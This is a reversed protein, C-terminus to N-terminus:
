LSGVITVPMGVRSRRFVDDMDRNSLAVCGNTWDKGDGGEGHVEILNGIGVRSPITGRQQAAKFRVRDEANPYNLLLAKYFATSGNQRTEVVRYKGEPTARDGAHKKPLLGNAGLEARFTAMRIGDDYLHLERRLKDVIIAPAGNRKSEAVTEAAWSRWQRLLRTDSFRNHLNNWGADVVSTFELSKEAARIARDLDGGKALGDATALQLEAKELASMERRGLGAGERLSVRAAQLEAQARPRVDAWRRESEHQKHLSLKPVEWSRLALRHWAAAVRDHDRQFRSASAEAATIREPDSLLREVAQSNEPFYQRSVTVARRASSKIAQHNAAM